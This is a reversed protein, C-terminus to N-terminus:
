CVSELQVCRATVKKISGTIDNHSATVMWMIIKVAIRSKEIALSARVTHIDEHSAAVYVNSASRVKDTEVIM